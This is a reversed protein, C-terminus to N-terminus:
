GFIGHIRVTMLVDEQLNELLGQNDVRPVSTLFSFYEFGKKDKKSHAYCHGFM